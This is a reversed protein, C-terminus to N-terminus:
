RDKRIEKLDGEWEEVSGKLEQLAKAQGALKVQKRLSEEAIAESPYCFKM